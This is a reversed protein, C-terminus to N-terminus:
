SLSKKTKRLLSFKLELNLYIVRKFALGYYNM